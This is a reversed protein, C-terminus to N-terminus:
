CIACTTPGRVRDPGERVARPHAADRARRRLAAPRDARLSRAAIRAAFQRAAADRQRPGRRRRSSKTCGAEKVMAAGNMRLLTELTAILADRPIGSSTRITVQGGVSSRDHLERQPHRRPHQARGRAPGCGRLQASGAAARSSSSRVPLCGGGPQQGRVLVGTGKFMRAKDEGTPLGPEQAREAAEALALSVGSVGRNPLTKTTPPEGVDPQTACGAVLFAAALASCAYAPRKKDHESHKMYTFGSSTAPVFDNASVEPGDAVGRASSINSTSRTGPLAAPRGTSNDQRRRSGGGGRRAGCAASSRRRGQEQQARAAAAAANPNVPSLRRRLRPGAAVAPAPQAGGRGARLRARTRRWRSCSSRPNM